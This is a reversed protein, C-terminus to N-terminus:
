AVGNHDEFVQKIPVLMVRTKPYKESNRVFPEYKRDIALGPYTTRNQM